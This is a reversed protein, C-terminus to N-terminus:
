NNKDVINRTQWFYIDNKKIGGEIDQPFGFEKEIVIANQAVKKLQSFLKKDSSLDNQVRDIDIIDENENFTVTPSGMQISSYKLEKTEKNYIFTHPLVTNEDFWANDSYLEIKLNGNNDDTYLTFKYDPNVRNQLIIGAQINESPINHKKRLYEANHEYKSNVVTYLGDVISEKDNISAEVTKYIGATSYNKLDEDNFASRIMLGDKADIGNMKLIDILNDIKNNNMYNNFIKMYVDFDDMPNDFAELYGFPVAMSKPIIVDIKGQEKLIELKKLNVAKAGIIDDEYEDSHLIKNCYKLKPVKVTDYKIPKPIKDSVKFDIKKDNLKLEVNKGDLSKLQKIKDLEFIAGCVDTEQRLRTGLHSFSAINDTTYIVGVINPNDLNSHFRNTVLITPESIDDNSRFINSEQYKVKGVTKGSKIVHLLPQNYLRRTAVSAKHMMSLPNYQYNKGNKLDIEGTDKYEIHYNFPQKLDIVVDASYLKGDKKMQVQQMVGDLYYVIYPMKGLMGENDTCNVVSQSKPEVKYTHAMFVPTSPLIKSVNM